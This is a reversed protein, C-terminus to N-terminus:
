MWRHEIIYLKQVPRGCLAGPKGPCRFLHKIGGLHCPVLSLEIRTSSPVWTASGKAEIVTIFSGNAASELWFDLRLIQNGTADKWMCYCPTRAPERFMGARTLAYINWDLHEETLAKM